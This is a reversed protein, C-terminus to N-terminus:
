RGGWTYVRRVRRTKGDGCRVVFTRSKYNSQVVTGNIYENRVKVAVDRGLVRESSGVYTDWQM